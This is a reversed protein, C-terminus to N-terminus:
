CSGAGSVTKTEKTTGDTATFSVTYPRKGSVCGVSEFFPVVKGGVKATVKSFTITEAELSSYLGLNGANTSVAPPLPTDYILTTGSEKLTGTWPAVSGTQLGACTHGAPIKFFDTVKGHGANWVDLVPGCPVGAQTAASPSWLASTVPGTGLLAGKPCGADTMKAAITAATCVPFGKTNFKVKPLTVKIDTLPDANANGATAPMASLKQVFGLVVPKAATGAGNQKAGISGTYTNLSAALAVGAAALVVFATAAIAAMRMTRM